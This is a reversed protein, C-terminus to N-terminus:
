ISRTGYYDEYNGKYDDVVVGSFQVDNNTNSQPIPDEIVDEYNDSYPNVFYMMSFAQQKNNNTHDICKSKYRPYDKEANGSTGYYTNSNSISSDDNMNLCGCNIASSKNCKIFCLDSHTYYTKMTTNLFTNITNLTGEESDSKLEMNKSYLPFIILIQAYLSSIITAPDEGDNTEMKFNQEGNGSILESYYPKKNNLIDVRADLWKSFPTNKTDSLDSSYKLYPAQSICAYVPGKIKGNISNKNTQIKTLLYSYLSNENYIYITEFINAINANNMQVSLEQPSIKLCKYALLDNYSMIDCYSIYPHTTSQINIRNYESKNYRNYDIAEKNFSSNLQQLDTNTNLNGKCNMEQGYKWSYNQNNQSDFNERNRFIYILFLASMILFLLTFIVKLSFLKNKM